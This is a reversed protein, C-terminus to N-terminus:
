VEGFDEDLMEEELAEEDVTSEFAAIDAELQKKHEDAEEDEDLEEDEIEEREMELFYEEESAYKMHSIKANTYKEKLVSCKPSDPMRGCVSKMKGEIIPMIKTVLVTDKHHINELAHHYKSFGNEQTFSNSREAGVKIGISLVITLALLLRFFKNM